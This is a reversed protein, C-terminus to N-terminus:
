HTSAGRPPHELEILLGSGCAVGAFALPRNPTALMVNPACIGCTERVRCVRGSQFVLFPVRVQAKVSRSVLNSSAVRVKALHVLIRM